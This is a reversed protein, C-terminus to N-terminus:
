YPCERDEKWTKHKSPRITRPWESNRGAWAKLGDSVWWWIALPIGVFTIGLGYVLLVGTWELPGWDIEGEKLADSGKSDPLNGDPHGPSRVSHDGVNGHADM